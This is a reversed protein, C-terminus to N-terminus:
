HIAESEPARKATTSAVRWQSSMSDTRPSSGASSRMPTSSSPMMSSRLFRPLSTLSSSRSVRRVDRDIDSTAVM